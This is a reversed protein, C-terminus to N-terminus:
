SDQSEFPPSGTCLEYILIGVCWIDVSKNYTGEQQNHRGLLMEPPLYDLTGCMTKRKDSPARVSWGFDAVKLVGMCDLLNEPKIDRHIIDKSHM